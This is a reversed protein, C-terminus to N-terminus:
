GNIGGKPASWSKGQKYGASRAQSDGARKASSAAGKRLGLNEYYQVVEKDKVLVLGWEEKHKEVQEKFQADLGSIFGTMYDNKIGSPSIELGLVEKLKMILRMKYIKQDHKYKQELEFLDFDSLEEGAMSYLDEETMKKFNYGSASEIEKKREKLYKKALHPLVSAAFMYVTKAVEADEKAGVFVIRQKGGYLKNMYYFCKFNEAIVSALRGQWWETKVAESRDEGVEVEKRQDEDAVAEVDEISLGHKALLRQANLLASQAEQETAGKDSTTNLMNKVKELIREQKTTSM